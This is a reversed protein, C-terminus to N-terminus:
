KLGIFCIVLFELSNGIIKANNAAKGGRATFVYAGAIGRIALSKPTM